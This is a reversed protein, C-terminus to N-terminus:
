FDLTFRISWTRGFSYFFYVNDENADTKATNVNNPNWAKEIYHKDFINHILGTVSLTSKRLSISYSAHADFFHSTPIRYPDNVYKEKGISLSGGSLSYYAYNRDYVFYSVGIKITENPKVTVDLAGTTQASGGVHTGKMNIVAWAHDAAGPTTINGDPTLPNGTPDYAYAKVNDSDWRWDGVSAMTSIEIWYTPIIKAELEVGMHMADVGIMNMYYQKKNAMKGKKTMSKDMWKTAYGSLSLDIWSTHFGYGFEVSFYKENKAETNIVNSTNASMFAGSKFIPPRTLFGSNFYLNHKSNIRYNVGGRVTGGVFGIVDSKAHEVDYYLRDYRSYTTYNISPTAFLEFGGRKYEFQAFTGSQTVYADYDRHVVDGVGLKQNIWVSDAISNNEISVDEREPDIYYAGGFLDSIRNTHQGKYYKLDVGVLLNMYDSLERNYVSMVGHRRSSTVLETMILQSGNASTANINEITSYAFTGDANRFTTNITGYDSGYWDYEDYLDGNATGSLSIGDGWLTYISTSLNSKDNMYWVHNLSVFPTNYEEYDNTKRQGNNDFGYDPNYCSWHRKGISYSSRVKEWESKTLANSRRYHKQPAGFSMISIQHNDNILKSINIYYAKSEFNLGQVYGDGSTQSGLFSVAWGKETVGSNYSILQKSYGDNGVLYTIRGSKQVEINKTVINIAGGITPVVLKSSSIGRQSQISLAVDSLSMWNSWYVSYNEMDNTPIGNILIAVNSNDFGRMFIEADGWGGGQKNAHVSPTAKLIEPFEQAGLKEEIDTRSIHSISIPTEHPRAIQSTITINPLVRQRITDKDNQGIALLSTTLFSFLWLCCKITKQKM